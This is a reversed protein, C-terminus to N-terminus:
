KISFIFKKLDDNNIQYVGTKNGKLKEDNISMESYLNKGLRETESEYTYPSKQGWYTFIDERDGLPSKFSQPSSLHDTLKKTYYAINALSSSDYYDSIDYSPLNGVDNLIRDVDGRGDAMMREIVNDINREPWPGTFDDNYSEERAKGVGYHERGLPTLSGDENQYRREGWHM